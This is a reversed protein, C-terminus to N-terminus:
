SLFIQNICHCHSTAALGEVHYLKKIIIIIIKLLLQVKIIM